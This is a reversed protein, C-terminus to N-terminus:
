NLPLMMQTDGQRGRAVNGPGAISNVGHRDNLREMFPCNAFAYYYWTQGEILEIPDTRMQKAARLGLFIWIINGAIMVFTLLSGLIKNSTEGISAANIFAGAHPDIDHKWITFFYPAIAALILIMTTCMHFLFYSDMRTSYSVMPLKGAVTFRFGVGILLVQVITGLRSSIPYVPYTLTLLAIFSVPTQVAVIGKMYYGSNRKLQFEVSVRKENIHKVLPECIQYEHISEIAGKEFQVGHVILRYKGWLKSNVFRMDLTLEQPDFPFDELEFVEKCMWGYMANMMITTQGPGNSYVRMDIPDLVAKSQQNYIDVLPLPDLAKTVDDVETKSLKTHDEESAFARDALEGFGKSHLDVDFMYYMRVRVFFEQNVMSIKNFEYVGVTAWVTTPGPQGDTMEQPESYRFASRNKLQTLYSHSSAPALSKEPSVSIDSPNAPTRPLVAPTQQQM